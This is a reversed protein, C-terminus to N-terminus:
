KTEVAKSSFLHTTPGEQAQKINNCYLRTKRVTVACCQGRKAACLPFIYSYFHPVFCLSPCTFFRVEHNFLYKLSFFFCETQTILAKNPQKIQKIQEHTDASLLVSVLGSEKCAHKNIDSLVALNFTGNNTGSPLWLANSLKVARMLTNSAFLPVSAGPWDKTLRFCHKVPRQCTAKHCETEHKVPRCLLLSSPNGLVTSRECMFVTSSTHLDWTCMYVAYLPIFVTSDCICVHAHVKTHTHPPTYVYMYM